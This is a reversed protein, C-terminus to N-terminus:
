REEQGFMRRWLEQDEKSLETTGEDEAPVLHQKRKALRAHSPKPKGQTSEKKEPASDPVEPEDGFVKLWTDVEETSLGGQKNVALPKPQRPPAKPRPKPPTIASEPSDHFVELWADVEEASVEDPKEVYRRPKEQKVPPPEMGMQGGISRTTRVPHADPASREQHRTAQPRSTRPKSPPTAPASPPPPEPPTEPEQFVELWTEVEAASIADPKEKTVEPTQNLRDVFEQASMTKAGIMQANDLVERDSSVVTWNPADPLHSLREEIIRDATSHYKAAFVVRVEPSSLGARFGAM